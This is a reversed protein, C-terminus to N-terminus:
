PCFAVTAFLQGSDTVHMQFCTGNPSKLILIPIAECLAIGNNYCLQRAGANTAAFGTQLVGPIRVLDAPRAVGDYTGADKGIIIMDSHFGQADAGIVTSYKLPEVGIQELKANAGILINHDGNRPGLFDANHGIFTNEFSNGTSSTGAHAGFFTNGSGTTSFGANVGFYANENGTDNFFGASDGFFANGTGTTLDQGAFPGGLFNDVGM